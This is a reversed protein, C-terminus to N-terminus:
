QRNDSSYNNWTIDTTDCYSDGLSIFPPSPHFRASYLLSPVPGPKLLQCGVVEDLDVDEVQLGHGHAASSVDAALESHLM